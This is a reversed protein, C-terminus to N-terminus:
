RPRGSDVLEVWDFRRGCLSLVDDVRRLRQVGRAALAVLRQPVLGGEAGPRIRSGTQEVEVSHTGAGLKLDILHIWQGTPNILAQVRVWGAGDIRARVPRSSSGAVWVSFAGARVVRFVGRGEGDVSVLVPKRQESVLLDAGRIRARRALERGSACSLRGTPDLPSGLGVHELVRRGPDQRWVDYWEGRFVLRFVSPPRSAVPSRRLVVTRYVLVDSLRFRDLDAFEGKGLISGDVLRVQRERLESAGEPDLRRLLHRVGYPQFETMLAPGQGAFREGITELERLQAAPALWVGRYAAVDSALVGAALLGALAVGVLSWRASSVVVSWGALALALVVPSSIALAKGASWPSGFGVVVVLGVTVSGALGLVPWARLRVASWLGVVVGAAAIAVLVGSLVPNAPDFRFDGTPWVGFLQWVRIPAVLNGLERQARFLGVNSGRLFSPAVVRVPLVLVGVLGVFWLLPRWGCRACIVAALPVLWFVAGVSLVSLFAAGFLAPVAVSRWSRNVGQISAALLVLLAAACLEKVGGWLAFGYLLASLSGVAAVGARSWVGVVLGRLVCFLGGALLAALFSLYPQWVWLLDSRVLRAAVGVPLVAGLPYGEALNVRLVAEYSSPALGSIDRGHSLARGGLAVFSATDDLKVYGAFSAEGSLVVPLGFAVFVVVMVVVPVRWEVPRWSRAGVVLGALALVVVTPVALPASVSWATWLGSLVVVFAFGSGVVVPVGSAGGDGVVRRVLLGCGVCVLALVAPFAVWAVFVFM